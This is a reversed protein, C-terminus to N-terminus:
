SKCYILLFSIGRILFDRENDEIPKGEMERLPVSFKKPFTGGNRGAEMQEM